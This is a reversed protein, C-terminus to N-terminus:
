EQIYVIPVPARSFERWRRILSGDYKMEIVDLWNMNPRDPNEELERVLKFWAPNDKRRLELWKKIIDMEIGAQRLIHVM